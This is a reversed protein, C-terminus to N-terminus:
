GSALEAEVHLVLDLEVAKRQHQAAAVVPNCGVVVIVDSGTLAAFVALEASAGAQDVIEIGAKRGVDGVGGAVIRDDAEIGALQQQRLGALLGLDAQFELRVAEITVEAERPEVQLPLIRQRGIRVVYKQWVWFPSTVERPKSSSATALGSGPSLNTPANVM